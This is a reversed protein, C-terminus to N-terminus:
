CPEARGTLRRLRRDAEEILRVMAQQAAMSDGQEIAEFVAQHYSLASQNSEHSANTLRISSHLASHTIGSLALLFDNHAARLIARHFRADADLFDAADSVDDRMAQLAEAIEDVDARTARTAAWAAAQPEFLQRVEDLQFVLGDDTDTSIQWDLVESDLLAWHERDRVRTGIGRRVDLLGKGVLIKIADRIVTRSVHFREALASEDEVLSGPMYMGTVINRGVQAAVESGLSPQAMANGKGPKHDDAQDM